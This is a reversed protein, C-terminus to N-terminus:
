RRRFFSRILVFILWILLLPGLFPALVSFIGGIISFILYLVVFIVVAVAVKGYWKSTDFLHFSGRGGAGNRATQGGSDYSGNYGGNNSGGTNDYASGGGYTDGYGRDTFRRGSSAEEQDLETTDEINKAILRPTGLEEIVEEESRGKAMEGDIYERYYQVNEELVDQPVDGSLDRRLSQLFEDRNM